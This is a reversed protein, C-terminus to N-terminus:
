GAAEWYRVFQDRVFPSTQSLLSEFGDSGVQNQLVGLQEAVYERLPTAVVADAAWLAARRQAEPEAERGGATPHQTSLSLISDRLAAARGNSEEDAAADLLSESAAFMADFGRGRGNRPACAGGAAAAGAGASAQLQALIPSPTGPESEYLVTVIVAVLAGFRPAVLSPVAMLSALAMCTAKRESPETVEEWRALWVDLFAGMAAEGGSDAFLGSFFSPAVLCVRAILVLYKACLVSPVKGNLLDGVAKTVVEGFLAPGGSPWVQLLTIVSPLVTAMGDDGRGYGMLRMLADAVESGRAELFAPGGLVAYSELIKCCSVLEGLGSHSLALARPLLGLLAASMPERAVKLTEEWLTLGEDMLYVGHPAPETCYEILPLVFDDIFAAEVGLAAVVKITTNVIAPKLNVYEDCVNWLEPLTSALSSALGRVKGGMRDLILSITRICLLKNEAEGSEAVVKLLGELALAAYGAFGEAEFDWDNILHWLAASAALKCVMDESGTLVDVVLEYAASRARPEKFSPLWHEILGLIRATIIPAYSSSTRAEGVLGDTFWSAFPVADALEWSSIGACRYAVDKMLVEDLSDLSANAAQSLMSLLAPSVLDFCTKVWAVVLADAAPRVDVEANLADGRLVYGEPDDGWLALDNACLPLLRSSVLELLELLRPSTDDESRAGSSCLFAEITEGAARLAVGAQPQSRVLSRLMASSFVSPSARWLATSASITSGDGAAEGPPPLLAVYDLVGTEFQLMLILYSQMFHSLSSVDDEFFTLSALADQLSDHYYHLFPQLIGAFSLPHAVLVESPVALIELVTAQASRGLEAAESANGAPGLLSPLTELLTGLWTVTPSSDSFSTVGHVVLKTLVRNAYLLVVLADEVGAVADASAGGRAIQELGVAVEEAGSRWVSTLMPLLESALQGLLQRTASAESEGEPVPAWRRTAGGAKRSSVLQHQPNALGEVLTPLLENWAGRALDVRAMRGVAGAVFNAIKPAGAFATPSALAALLLETKLCVAVLPMLLM